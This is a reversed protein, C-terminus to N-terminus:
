KIFILLYKNNIINLINYIKIGLKVFQNFISNIIAFIIVFNFKLIYFTLFM